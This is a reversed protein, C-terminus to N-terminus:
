PNAQNGGNNLWARTAGSTPDVVLYDDLGDGDLDALHVEVPFSMAVGYAIKRKESWQNDFGGLNMWGYLANNDGPDRLVYDARKDCNMNAFVTKQTVTASQPQALLGQAAWGGGGPANTGNNKWAHVSHDISVLLYDDDGDGDIDAFQVESEGAGAPGQAIVGLSTWTTIGKTFPGDNRWGRVRGNTDDVVLYDDRQDGNIDAFVVRETKGLSMGEAVRGIKIWANTGRPAVDDNRWAEVEGKPGVLLYDDDGDGDLDAFTVSRTNNSADLKHDGYVGVKKFGNEKDARTAVDDNEWWTATGTSGIVFYDADHDADADAFQVAEGGTGTGTAIKGISKWGERLDEAVSKNLWAETSGDSHVILYDADKDGDLDALRVKSGPYGVGGSIRGLKKWASGGNAFVDDNIWADISGDDHVVLYDDDVDGDIDAFHIDTGGGTGTGAAITGKAHWASGGNVWVDDNRWAEVSGDSHVVLYDADHDGDIDAFRVQAGRGAVGNGAAVKGRNVWGGTIKTWLYVAGTDTVIAYDTKGNGDFDALRVRGQVGASSSDSNIPGEAIRGLEKWGGGTEVCLGTGPNGEDPDVAAAGTVWGKNMMTMVTDFFEDAMFDYGIDNPHLRDYLMADTMPGMEALEVKEGKDQREAVLSRVQENYAERRAEAPPDGKVPVLTAVAIAVGPSGERVRDILADLRDPATAVNMDRQIDNTGAMLTVVNPRMSKADRAAPDAIQDIEFGRVGNHEPDTMTGSHNSGVFDPKLQEQNLDDWLDQRYGNGDSSGVGYTISDGVPMLRVSPHLGGWDRMAEDLLDTLDELQHGIADTGEAAPTGLWRNIWPVRGRIWTGLDKIHRALNAKAWPSLYKEWLFGGSLGLVGGIIIDRTAKPTGLTGNFAHAVLPTVIGTVVGQLPTCIVPITAAGVGSATFFGMCLMRLGYGSTWGILGAAIGSWWSTTTVEGAPITFALGADDSTMAVSGDFNSWESTDVVTSSVEEKLAAKLANGLGGHEEIDEQIEPVVDRMVDPDIGLDTANLTLVFDQSGGRDDAAVPSILGVFM